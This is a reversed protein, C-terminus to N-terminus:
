ISQISDIMKYKSLANENVASLDSETRDYNFSINECIKQNYIGYDGSRGFDDNFTLKVKDQHHTYFKRIFQYRKIGCRRYGVRGFLIQIESQLHM